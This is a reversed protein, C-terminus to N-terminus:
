RLYVHALSVTVALVPPLLVVGAASVLVAFWAEARAGTHFRLFRPLGVRRWRMGRIRLPWWFPVGMTTCGDLVDHSLLGAAVALGVIAPTPAALTVAGGGLLAAAVSGVGRQSTLARLALFTTLLAVALTVGWGLRALQWAGAGVAVAAVGTHTLGRHVPSGYRADAPTATVEFAAQALWQVGRAAGQSLRGLSHSATSSPTDLDNLLAAGGAVAACALSVTLPLHRVLASYADAVAFGGAVGGLVHTRGLCM